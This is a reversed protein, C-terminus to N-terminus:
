AFVRDRDGTAYGGSGRNIAHLDDVDALAVMLVADV